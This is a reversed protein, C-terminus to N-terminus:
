VWTQLDDTRGEFVGRSDESGAEARPVVLGFACLFNM